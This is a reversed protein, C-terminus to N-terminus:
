AGAAAEVLYTSLKERLDDPIEVSRFEGPATLCCVAKVRGRAIRQEGRYFVSEFTVSKAGLGTICLEVRVLDEFHVPALYECSAMVRPWSMEGADTKSLVGGAIKRWFAVEAEEMWRLYNSFHMVGAMDTEVFSVRREHVFVESM